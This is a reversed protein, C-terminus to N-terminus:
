HAITARPLLNFAARWSPAYIMDYIAVDSADFAPFRDDFLLLLM